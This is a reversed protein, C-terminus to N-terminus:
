ENKVMEGKLAEELGVSSIVFEAIKAAVTLFKGRQGNRGAVMNFGCRKGAEIIEAYQEKTLGISKM